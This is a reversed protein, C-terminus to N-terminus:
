AVIPDGNAQRVWWNYLYSSKIAALNESQENAREAEDYLKLLEESVVEDDNDKVGKGKKKRAKTQDKIAKDSSSRAVPTLRPKKKSKLNGYNNETDGDSDNEKRKKDRRGKVETDSKAVARRLIVNIAFVGEDFSLDLGENGEYAYLIGEEDSPVFINMMTALDTLIVAVRRGGTSALLGLYELKIQGLSQPLKVKEPRKISIIMDAYDYVPERPDLDEEAICIDSQGTYTCNETELQLDFERVNYAARGKRLIGSSNLFKVIRETAQPETEGDNWHFVTGKKLRKPPLGPIRM